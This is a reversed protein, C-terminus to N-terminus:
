ERTDRYTIDAVALGDCHSHKLFMSQIKPLTGLSRCIVGFIHSYIIIFDICCVLLRFM